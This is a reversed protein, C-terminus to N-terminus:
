RTSTVESARVAFEGPNSKAALAGEGRGSSTPNPAVRPKQWVFFAQRYPPAADQKRLFLLYYIGSFLWMFLRQQLLAIRLWAECNDSGTVQAGPLVELLEERTPHGQKLHEQLWGPQVGNRKAIAAFLRLDPKRAQFLGDASDVPCTIVVGYRVVRKLEETFAARSTCPLHEVTDLSVAADFSNDRFPLKCGDACVRLTGRGRSDRLLDASRDILCVGPDQRGLAWAMGGSRGSAVEILRSEDPSVLGKLAAIVGAYRFWYYCSPSLLTEFWGYGGDPRRGLFGLVRMGLAEWGTRLAADFLRLPGYRQWAGRLGGHRKLAAGYQGVCTSVL